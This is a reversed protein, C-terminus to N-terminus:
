GEKNVDAVLADIDIKFEDDEVAATAKENEKNEVSAASIITM